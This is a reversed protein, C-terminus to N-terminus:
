NLFVSAWVLVTTLATIAITLLFLWRTYKLIKENQESTLRNNEKITENLEKISADTAGSSDYRDGM